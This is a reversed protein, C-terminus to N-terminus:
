RPGIVVFSFKREEAQGSRNVTKVWMGLESLRTIIASHDGKENENFASVFAAPMSNFREHFSVYYLGTGTADTIPKGAGFGLGDKKEGDVVGRLLRLKESGGPVSLGAVTANGTVNLTQASLKGSVTADSAILAKAINVVGSPDIELANQGYLVGGATLLLVVLLAALLFKRSFAPRQSCSARRLLDSHEAELKGLRQRLAVLEAQLDSVPQEDM